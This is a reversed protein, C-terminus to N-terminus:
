RGDLAEVITVRSLVQRMEFDVSGVLNSWSAVIAIFYSFLDFVVKIRSFHTDGMKLTGEADVAVAITSEHLETSRFTADIVLRVRLGQVKKAKSVLSTSSSDSCRKGDWAIRTISRLRRPVHM